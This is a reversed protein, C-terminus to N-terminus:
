MIDYPTEYQVKSKLRKLATKIPKYRKTGTNDRTKKINSRKENNQYEPSSLIKRTYLSERPYM